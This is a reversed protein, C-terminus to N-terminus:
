DQGNELLPFLRADIAERARFIRSRVTGVPCGMVEAIQEYSLGDYERLTVATRLDEPLQVIAENIAKRIEERHLIREPTDEDKLRADPIMQEADMVDIDNVPPRRNRTILHNKAANLAIRYIWTYFESDGRFGPLARYIKIMAEQTVDQVDDPNRVLRSILNALRSQYKLMLLDFARREGAQVREVLKQDQNSNNM